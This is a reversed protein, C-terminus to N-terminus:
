SDENHVITEHVGARLGSGRFLGCSLPILSVSLLRTRIIRRGVGGGPKDLKGAQHVAEIRPDGLAM